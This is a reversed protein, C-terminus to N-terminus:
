RRARVGSVPMAGDGAGGRVQDLVGMTWGDGDVAIKKGDKGKAGGARDHAAVRFAAVFEKYNIQGSHDTDITQALRIAQEKSYECKLSSLVKQFEDYSVSGDGSTDVDSFVQLVNGTGTKMLVSGVKALEGRM